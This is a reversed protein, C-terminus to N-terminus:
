LFRRVTKGIVKAMRLFGLDTPHVGDVTGFNDREVDGLLTDGKVYFLDKVGVKLLHRFAERLRANKDTRINAGPKQFPQSQYIINEVLVIPTRPRATRLTKVFPETRQSVQEPSMNPLGDLVFVAPNLEGLFPAMELDMPGNGSFGLNISNCDLDRSMIEPYGMGSRSACGGHVISTGYVVFGRGKKGSRPKARKITAGEPIGIAVSTVGNYLPLFLQYERSGDLSGNITVKNTLSAGPIGTGAWLWRGSKRGYLDLGSVGTAPMHPMAYNESRLTWRASIATANTVFRVNIGASHHSLEWVPPRVIAKARAPLRDYFEETDNWGRGEVGLARIDYWRVGDAVELPVFNKDLKDITSTQAMTDRITPILFKILGALIGRTDLDPLGM